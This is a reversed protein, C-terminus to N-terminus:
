IKSSRGRHIEQSNYTSCLSRWRRSCFEEVEVEKDEQVRLRRSRMCESFL